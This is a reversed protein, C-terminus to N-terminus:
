EAQVASLIDLRAARRAPAVAAVRGAAAAVALLIALTSFPISLVFDAGTLSRTIVVAFATGVALGVLGGMLSTVVAEYRIMQRLQRRTTGIARLMGLERTREYVSLVMTNVIGFLSVIVALALLVYILVLLSDVKKTQNAKFESATLSTAQPFSHGLVRNVAPQVSANTAGPAYAVFDVADDRQGFSHELVQREVTLSGLLRANDTVIGRVVLHVHQGSPTLVSLASGVHLNHSQAFSQSAITGTTALKAYVRDSGVEWHVRYLRAFTAPEIGTVSQNGAIGAVQGKSFSVPTVTAVGPVRRLSPALASPVGQNTNTASNEVILNGAFSSDVAKDITARTGAAVISVFTVLALGIMLAAATVATRGPQRRANERALVGTVGRWTVLPGLLGALSPVLRPTLLAIGLFVVLAGLGLVAAGGHAALGAAVTAAGLSLLVLAALLAPRGPRGPEEAAGERLAAVPPIRTARIAPPLGAAVTVLVGVLLSVVVTRPELVTGSDPLDAGFNKFLQDLGPAVLLGLALGVGSGVVGLLLSEGAVSGLLQSRSAGLARLVGFERTRQAVTISFTNFIIFAGVFLAVYAFILLFTRLFGLNSEIANSEQAAQQSGTRVDVSAPLVARLRQRLQNPTVGPAAAVDIEGFRGPQATVAQAEPLTLVAVGTGGFSGSNAFRVIGVIRYHRAPASGAVELPDGVKLHYRSATFQDIATQGAGTPLRGAVPSFSEFPAPELASVFSPAATNLRSGRGNLLTANSFIGGAARAVGPVARVQDLMQTTIPSTQAADNHGLANHPSVVVANQANATAFITGFSANITDTLIYTGAMLTVGLAIAVATLAMRVKRSVFGRWLVRLM